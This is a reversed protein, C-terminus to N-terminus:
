CEERRLLGLVKPVEGRAGHMFKREGGVELSLSSELQIYVGWSHIEVGSIATEGIGLKDM